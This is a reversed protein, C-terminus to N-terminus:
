TGPAGAIDKEPDEADYDVRMLADWAAQPIPASAWDITTRVREPKSIGVITAATRPDRMSFQLAAAGPAIEHAACIEEVRRARSLVASSAEQYAARKFTSSGKALIGGTFPAANLVAIGASTAMDIVDEASRNLLNFRNHTIVADFPWHPLIQAMLDLRGMALGIADVLGEEKMRVLTDLAGGKRTIDDLELCFEPDHLHLLHVRELGLRELSEELSRRARASDLIGTEPDRDLKTSIVFGDPLGGRERIAQGIRMESQGAGYNNSTDLFNVPSDFIARLTELARAEDVEYGYVGPENGLASAGFCLDTVWLDTRGLRRRKM